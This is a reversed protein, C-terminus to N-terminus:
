FNLSIFMSPLFFLCTQEAYITFIYCFVYAAYLHMILKLYVDSSLFHGISTVLGLSYIPSIFYLYVFLYDEFVAPKILQNFLCTM